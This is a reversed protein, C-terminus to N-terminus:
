MVDELEDVPQEAGEQMKKKNVRLSMYKGQTGENIFADIFYLVGNVNIEGTYDAKGSGEKNKFLNGRNVKTVYAM